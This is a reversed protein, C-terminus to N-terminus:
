LRRHPTPPEVDPKSPYARPTIVGRADVLVEEGGAAPMVTKQPAPEVKEVMGKLENVAATNIDAYPAGHLQCERILQMLMFARALDIEKAM